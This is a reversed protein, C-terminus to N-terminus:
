FPLDDDGIIGNQKPSDAVPTANQPENPTASPTGGLTQPKVKSSKYFSVVNVDEGHYTDLEVSIHIILNGGQLFDIVDNITEFTTGDEIDQTGMLQNLRKRNFVGPNDREAWIDEFVCKNGYAQGDVDSRIRYMISLKEKGSPLTKREIREIVAEYDGEKILGSVDSADYTYSM